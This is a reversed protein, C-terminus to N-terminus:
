VCIIAPCTDLAGHKVEEGTLVNKMCAFVEKVMTLEKSLVASTLVVAIGDKDRLVDRFLDTVATSQDGLISSTLVMEDAGQM